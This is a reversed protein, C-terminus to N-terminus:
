PGLDPPSLVGHFSVVGRLGPAGARAMDLACLGGFCYGIAAVRDADVLPHARAAAVAALLRRRLLARDALLPAMLASNDDMLGGRVGKGYVDVAIGVCGMGALEDAKGREYDSQGAWQHAILVCPRRGGGAGDHAVYAEFTLQGDTYDLCATEM